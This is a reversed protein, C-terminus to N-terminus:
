SLPSPRRCSSAQGSRRAGRPLCTEGRRPSPWPRSPGTTRWPSRVTALVQVLVALEHLGELGLEGVQSTLDEIQEFDEGGVVGRLWLECFPPRWRPATLNPYTAQKLNPDDSSTHPTAHTTRHPSSTDQSGPSAESARRNREHHPAPLPHRAGSRRHRQAPQSRRTEAVAPVIKWPVRVGSVTHNAAAHCRVLLLTPM